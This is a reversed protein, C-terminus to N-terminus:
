AASQREHTGEGIEEVISAIFAPLDDPSRSTVLGQDVVVDEDRWHGGANEVDTRISPYSTVQKGGILGAEVLLWPGHCIAAVTKGAGYFERIIDIAKEETRLLDPNIVGGPLVLADYENASVAGLEMDVPVAGSWDGDEWGKIQGSKPSAVHVTAGQERLQRRPEMLESKEFGDTALILIRANAIDTM